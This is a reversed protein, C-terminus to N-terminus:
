EISYNLFFKFRYIFGENFTITDTNIEAYGPSYSNVVYNGPMIEFRFKGKENIFAGKKKSKIQVLGTEPVISDKKDVLEGMIICNDANNNKEIIMEYERNVNNTQGTSIFSCFLLIILVSFLQMFNFNNTGM